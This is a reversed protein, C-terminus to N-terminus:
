ARKADDRLPVASNSGLQRHRHNQAIQHYRCEYEDCSSCPTRKPIHSRKKSGAMASSAITLVQQDLKTYETALPDDEHTGFRYPPKMGFTGVHRLEEITEVEHNYRKM